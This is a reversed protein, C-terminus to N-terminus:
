RALSSALKQVPVWKTISPPQVAPLDIHDEGGPHARCGRARAGRLAAARGANALKESAMNRTIITYVAASSMPTGSSPDHAIM